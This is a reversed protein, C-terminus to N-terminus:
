KNRLLKVRFSKTKSCDYPCWHRGKCVGVNSHVYDIVINHKGKANANSDNVVFKDKESLLM